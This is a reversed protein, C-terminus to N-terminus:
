QVGATGKGLVWDSTLQIYPRLAEEGLAWCRGGMGVSSDRLLQSHGQGPEKRKVGLEIVHRIIVENGIVKSYHTKIQRTNILLM